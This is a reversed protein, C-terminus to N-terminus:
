QKKPLWVPHKPAVVIRLAGEAMSPDVGANATHTSLAATFARMLGSYSANPSSGPEEPNQKAVVNVGTLQAGFHVPPPLPPAQQGKFPGGAPNETPLPMPFSKVWSAHELGTSIMVAILFSDVDDKVYLIEVPQKPVNELEKIFLPMDLWRAAAAERLKATENNLEAIRVDSKRRLERWHDEKINTTSVILYTAVVGLALASVLAINAWDGWREAAELSSWWWMGRGGHNM